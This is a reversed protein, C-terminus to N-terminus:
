LFFDGSPDLGWNIFNQVNQLPPHIGKIRELFPYPLLNEVMSLDWNEDEDILEDLELEWNPISGPDQVVEFLVCASDVWKDRWFNIGTGDSVNWVCLNSFNAWIALM